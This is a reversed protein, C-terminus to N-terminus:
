KLFYICNIINSTNQSTDTFIEKDTETIISQSLNNSINNIESPSKLVLDRISENVSEDPIEPSNFFNLRKTKKDKVIEFSNSNLKNEIRNRTRFPNTVNMMDNTNKFLDTDEFFRINTKEPSLRRSVKNNLFHLRKELEQTALKEENSSISANNSISNGKIRFSFYNITNTNSIQPEPHSTRKSPFELEFSESKLEIEKKNPINSTQKNLNLLHEISNNNKSSIQEIKDIKKLLINFFKHFSPNKSNKKNRRTKKQNEQDSLLQKISYQNNNINLMQEYKPFNYSLFYQKQINFIYKKLSEQDTKNYKTQLNRFFNQIDM